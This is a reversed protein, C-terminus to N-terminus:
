KKSNDKMILETAKAAVGRMQAILDRLQRGYGIWEPYLRAQNESLRSTLDQWQGQGDM